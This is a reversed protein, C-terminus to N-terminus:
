FCECECFFHLGRFYFARPPRPCMALYLNHPNVWQDDSELRRQCAVRETNECYMQQPQHPWPFFFRAVYELKGRVTQATHRVVM